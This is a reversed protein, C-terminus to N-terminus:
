PWILALTLTLTLGLSPTRKVEVMEGHLEWDDGVEIAYTPRAPAEVLWEGGVCTATAAGACVRHLDANAVYGVRGGGPGPLHVAIADLGNRSFRSKEAQLVLAVGAPAAAAARERLTAVAEPSGLKEMQALLVQWLQIATTLVAMTLIATGDTRGGYRTAGYYTYSHLRAIPVQM